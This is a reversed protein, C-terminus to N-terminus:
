GGNDGVKLGGGERSDEDTPGKYMIAKYGDFCCLACVYLFRFQFGLYKSYTIKVMNGQVTCTNKYTCM